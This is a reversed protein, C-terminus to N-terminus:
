AEPAAEWEVGVWEEGVGICDGECGFVMVTGWEMEGADGEGRAEGKALRLIEARREEETQVKANGAPPKGTTSLSSPRLVNILQPVLQLEFVRAAGCRTCAPVPKTTYYDALNVEDEESSPARTPAGPFLKKFLPSSSSYPLPVANFDYRLVQNSADEASALRRAFREFIDDVSKPLLKDWGDERWEAKQEPAEDEDESVDVDSDEAIPLFEDVTTIYQPPQYAPIPPTHVVPDSLSLSAVAATPADDKKPSSPHPSAAPASPSAFPNAAAAGFLPKPAGFLGAGAGANQQVTFPNQRAREREEAAIREAEARKAEVDAVYEENRVSARFARVSGERRRCGPRACAWVYITRDNEGGELPCYVQSLLPMAKHCAGCRVEEPASTAAVAKGKGKPNRSPGAPVAPFAPYGGIFSTTHSPAEEMPGDPLALLVTAVEEESFDSADDRAM